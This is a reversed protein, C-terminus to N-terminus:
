NGSPLKVKAFLSASTRKTFGSEVIRVPQGPDLVPTEDRRAVVTEIEGRCGIESHKTEMQVGGSRRHDVAFVAHADFRRASRAGRMIIGDRPQFRRTFDNHVTLRTRNAALGPEVM